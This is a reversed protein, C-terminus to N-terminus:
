EEERIRKERLWLIFEQQHRNYEYVLSEAKFVGRWRMSAKRWMFATFWVLGSVFIGFVSAGGLLVFLCGITTILNFVSEEM